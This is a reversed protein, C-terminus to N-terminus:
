DSSQHFRTAYQLKRLCVDPDSNKSVNVFIKRRLIYGSYIKKGHFSNLFQFLLNWSFRQHGAIISPLARYRAVARRNLFVPNSPEPHHTHLVPAICVSFRGQPVRDVVFGVHLLGSDVLAAATLCRGSPGQEWTATLMILDRYSYWGSLLSHSWM